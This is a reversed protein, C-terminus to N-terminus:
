SRQADREVMATAGSFVGLPKEVGIKPLLGKENRQMELARGAVTPIDSPPFFLVGNDDALVVDGPHVVAGGCCIPVNFAGGTDYLRTTIPSVGTSWVPFELDLIEYPDNCPGDIVAATVGRQALAYTVGGGLCSVRRDGFRDIVLIDGPRLLAVVHHLLTSDLGPLALTVATGYVRAGTRLPKIAPDAFGMLRFHGVTATEVDELRELDAPPVAAPMDRIEYRRNSM